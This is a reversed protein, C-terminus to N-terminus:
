KTKRVPRKISNKKREAEVKNRVEADMTKPLVPESFYNMSFLHTLNELAKKRHDMTDILTQMENVKYQARIVKKSAEQREPQVLIAKEVVPETVKEIGFLKPDKRIRQDIEAEVIGLNAKAQELNRRLIPLKMAFRYYIKAHNKWLEDLRKEDFNFIESLDETEEDM